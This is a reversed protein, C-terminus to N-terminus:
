ARSRVWPLASVRVVRPQLNDVGEAYVDVEKLNQTFRYKTM